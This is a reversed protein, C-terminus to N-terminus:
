GDTRGVRIEEVLSLNYSTGDCDVIFGHVVAASLFEQIKDFEVSMWASCWRGSAFRMRLETM